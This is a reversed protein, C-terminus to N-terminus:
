KLDIKRGKWYNQKFLFNAFSRGAIHVLASLRLPLLLIQLPISQGSARSTLAVNTLLGGVYAALGVLGFADHAPFFGAVILSIFLFLGVYSGGFYAQINRAFGEVSENYNNYMRCQINTNGLLTQIKFGKRKVSRAIAIDEVMETKNLSHWKNERYNDADFLMCQGNAASLSSFSTRQVLPLPLLSVLIWNMLPVTIQEGLSRMVQRPFVSVLQLQHRQLYDIIEGTFGKKLRVDADLFLLYEGRAKNALQNCAYLKGNRWKPPVPGGKVIQFQKHSRAWSQIIDYTHDESQDDYIIVEINEYTQTRLDSLLNGITDEENRAPILISCLPQQNPTTGSLRTRGWLNVTGVIIMWGLLIYVAAAWYIM